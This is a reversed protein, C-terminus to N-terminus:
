RVVAPADIRAVADHLRSHVDVHFHGVLAAVCLEEGSQSAQVNVSGGREFEVLVDEVLAREAALADVVQAHELLHQLPCEGLVEDQAVVQYLTAM